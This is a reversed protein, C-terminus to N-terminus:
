HVCGCFLSGYRIVFYQPMESQSNEEGAAAKTRTVLQYNENIRAAAEAATARAVPYTCSNSPSTLLGVLFVILILKIM